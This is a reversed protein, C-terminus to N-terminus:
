TLCMITKRVQPLQAPILAIIFRTIALCTEILFLFGVAKRSSIQMYRKTRISGEYVLPDETLQYFSPALQTLDYKIVEAFPQIDDDTEFTAAYLAFNKIALTYDSTLEVKVTGGDPNTILKKYPTYNSKSSITDTAFTLGNIAIKVSCIGFVEVYLSKAGTAELTLTGGEVSRIRDGDNLLNAVPNHAVQISFEKGMGSSAGTIVAIKKM